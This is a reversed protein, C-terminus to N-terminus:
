KRKYGTVKPEIIPEFEERTYGIGDCTPCTIEPHVQVPKLGCHRCGRCDNYACPAYEGKDVPVWKEVKTTTDYIIGLTSCQPCLFPRGNMKAKLGKICGEHVVLSHIIKGDDVEKNCYACNM